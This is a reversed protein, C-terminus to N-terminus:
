KRRRLAAFVGLSLAIMSAPEPVATVVVNDVGIDNQSSLFGVLQLNTTTSTAMFNWSHHEWTQGGSTPPVATLITEQGAAILKLCSISTYSAHAGLDVQVNYIQGITTAFSQEVGGYPSGSSYGTLDLCYGGDSAAYGNFPNMPGIWAISDDIVTWGTIDTAGVGLAMTDDGNPVFNGSEFSGNSILNAHSIVALTTLALSIVIRNM